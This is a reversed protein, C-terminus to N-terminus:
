IQSVRLHIETSSFKTWAGTINLLCHVQESIQAHTCYYLRRVRLFQLAIDHSSVPNPISKQMASIAAVRQAVLKNQKTMFAQRLSLLSQRQSETINM